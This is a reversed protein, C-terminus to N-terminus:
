HSNSNISSIRRDGGPIYLVWIFLPINVRGYSSTRRIETDNVTAGTRNNKTELNKSKGSAHALYM